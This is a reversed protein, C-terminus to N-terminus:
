ATRQSSKIVIWCSGPYIYVLVTTCLPIHDHLVQLRDWPVRIPHSAMVAFLWVTKSIGTLRCCTNPIPSSLPICLPFGWLVSPVGLACPSCAFVGWVCLAGLSYDFEQGWLHSAFKNVVLGGQGLREVRILLALFFSIAAFFNEGSYSWYTENERGRWSIIM